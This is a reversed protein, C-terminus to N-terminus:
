PYYKPRIQFTLYVSFTRFDKIIGFLLNQLCRKLYKLFCVFNLKQFLLLKFESLLINLFSSSTYYFIKIELMSYFSKNSLLFSWKSEYLIRINEKLIKMKKKEKYFQGKNKSKNVQSEKCLQEHSNHLRKASSLRLFRTWVPM